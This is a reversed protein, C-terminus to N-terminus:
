LTLEELQYLGIMGAQAHAVKKRQRWDAVPAKGGESIAKAERAAKAQARVFPDLPGRLQETREIHKIEPDIQAQIKKLIRHASPTQILNLFSTDLLSQLFTTIQIATLSIFSISFCRFPCNIVQLMSPIETNGHDPKLVLVGYENKKMGKSSPLLRLDRGAWQGIWNDLVELLCVVDDGDSFYRRFAARLPIGSFNYRLFLNMFARLTPPEDEMSPASDVQMAPGRRHRALIFCLCEVIDM